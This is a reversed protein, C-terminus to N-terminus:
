KEFAWKYRPDYQIEKLAQRYLEDEAGYFHIDECFKTWWGSKIDDYYMDLEESTFDLKFNDVNVGIAALQSIIDDPTTHNLKANYEVTQISVVRNDRRACLRDKWAHQLLDTAFYNEGKNSQYFIEMSIEPVHRFYLATVEPLTKLDVNKDMDLLYGCQAGPRMFMQKGITKLAYGNHEQFATPYQLEYCYIVGLNSDDLHPKYTDTKGDYDTTAFFKMVEIDSSLDLFRSRNYYHQTLGAYNMRFKFTDHLLEIGGDLLRVLPHTQILLEMEQSFILFELYNRAANHKDSRYLNPVCPKGEYHDSQGRYLFKHQYLNPKFSFYRTEMQNVFFARAPFRNKYQAVFPSAWHIRFHGQVSDYFYKQQEIDQLLIDADHAEAEMQKIYEVAEYVNDFPNEKTGKDGAKLSKVTSKAPLPNYRNVYLQTCADSMHAKYFYAGNYPEAPTRMFTAEVNFDEKLVRQVNSFFYDKQESPMPIQLGKLAILANAYYLSEMLLDKGKYLAPNKILYLMRVKTYVESRLMTFGNRAICNKLLKESIIVENNVPNVDSYQPFGYKAPLSSVTAIQMTIPDIDMVECVDKAFAKALAIAQNINVM